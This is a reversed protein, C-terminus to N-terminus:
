SGYWIVTQHCGFEAGERAGSFTLACAAFWKEKWPIRGNWPMALLGNGPVSNRKLDDAALIHGIEHLAVAYTVSSKVPRIGIVRRKRWARGSRHSIVTIRHTLCLERVHLEYGRVSM